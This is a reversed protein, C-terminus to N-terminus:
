DSRIYVVTRFDTELRPRLNCQWSYRLQLKEVFGQDIKDEHLM